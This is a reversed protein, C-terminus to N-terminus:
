TPMITEPHCGGLYAAAPSIGSFAPSFSNPCQLSFGCVPLQYTASLVAQSMCIHHLILHVIQDSHRSIEKSTSFDYIWNYQIAVFAM